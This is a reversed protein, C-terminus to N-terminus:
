SKKCLTHHQNEIKFQKQGDLRLM